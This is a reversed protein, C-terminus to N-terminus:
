QILKAKEKALQEKSAPIFEGSWGFTAIKLKNTDILTLKFKAGGSFGLKVPWPASKGVTIDNKTIKAVWLNQDPCIEANGEAWVGENSKFFTLFLNKERNGLDIFLPKGDDATTEIWTDSNLKKGIDTQFSSYLKSCPSEQVVQKEPAPKLQPLESAAWVSLGSLFLFSLLSNILISKVSTRQFSALIALLQTNRKVMM